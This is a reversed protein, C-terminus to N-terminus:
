INCDKGKIAMKQKTKSIKLGYKSTFTELKHVSTKLTDVSDSVAVQDDAFLLTKININFHQM